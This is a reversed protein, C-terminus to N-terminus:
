CPLEPLDLARDACSCYMRYGHYEQGSNAMILGKGHHSSFVLSLAYRIIDARQTQHANDSRLFTREYHEMKARSNEAIPVTLLSLGDAFLYLTDRHLAM